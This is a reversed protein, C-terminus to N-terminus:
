RYNFRATSGAHYEQEDKLQRDGLDIGSYSILQKIFQVRRDLSGGPKKKIASLTNYASVLNELRFDDSSTLNNHDIIAKVENRHHRGRHFFGAKSFLGLVPRYGSYDELIKFVQLRLKQLPELKESSRPLKYLSTYSKPFYRDEEDTLTAQAQDRQNDEVGIIKVAQDNLASCFTSEGIPTETIGTNNKADVKVFKYDNGLDDANEQLFKDVVEDSVSKEHEPLDAKSGVVIFKANSTSAKALELFRKLKKLSDSSDYSFNLCVIQARSVFAKSLESYKELGSCDFIRFKIRSQAPKYGTFDVGITPLHREPIPENALRNCLSTKGTAEAGLIVTEISGMIYNGELAQPISTTYLVLRLYLKFLSPKVGQRM